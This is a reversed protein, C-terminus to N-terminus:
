FDVCKLLLIGQLNRFGIVIESVRAATDDYTLYYIVERRRARDFM